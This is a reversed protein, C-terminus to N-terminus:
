EGLVVEVRRRIPDEAVHRFMAPSVVTRGASEHEIELLGLRTPVPVVLSGRTSCHIADMVTAGDGSSVRVLGGEIEAGDADVLRVSCLAVTGRLDIVGLDLCGEVVTFERRFLGSEGVNLVAELAHDGPQLRWIRAPPRELRFDDPSRTEVIEGDPGLVRIAVLNETSVWDDLLVRFSVEPGTSLVLEVDAAGCRFEFPGIGMRPALHGTMALGHRHTRYRTSVVCVDLTSGAPAVDARIEFRGEEDSVASPQSHVEYRTVDAAGVAMHSLVFVEAEPLPIGDATVVRGSLLLPLAGPAAFDGKARPAEDGAPDVTAAAARRDDRDPLPRVDVATDPRAAAGVRAASRSAM